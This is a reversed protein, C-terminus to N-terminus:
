TEHPNQREPRRPVKGLRHAIGNRVTQKDESRDPVQHGDKVAAMAAVSQPM